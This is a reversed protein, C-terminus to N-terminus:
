CKISFFIFDKLSVCVHIEEAMPHEWQKDKKKKHKIEFLDVLDVDKNKEVQLCMLKNYSMYM